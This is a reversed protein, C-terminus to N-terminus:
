VGAWDKRIRIKLKKKDTSPRSSLAECISPLYEIVQAIGM